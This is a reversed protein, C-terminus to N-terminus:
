EPRPHRKLVLKGEVNAATEVHTESVHLLAIEGPAITHLVNPSLSPGPAAKPAPAASTRAARPRGARPAAPESAAPASGSLRYIRERGQRRVSLAKQRVLTRLAQYISYFPLKTGSLATAKAAIESTPLAAGAGSSEVANLVWKRTDHRELKRSKKRAPM